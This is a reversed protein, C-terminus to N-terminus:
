QSESANETVTHCRLCIRTDVLAPAELAAAVSTADQTRECEPEAPDEEVTGDTGDSDDDGEQGPQEGSPEESDGQDPEPPLTASSEDSPEEAGVGDSDPVAADDTSTTEDSRVPGDETPGATTTQRSRAGDDGAPSVTVLGDVSRVLALKFTELPDASVVTSVVTATCTGSPPAAVGVPGDVGSASMHCAVCRRDGVAMASAVAPLDAYAATGVPDDADAHCMRCYTAGGGELSGLDYWKQHEPRLDTSHCGGLCGVNEGLTYAIGGV